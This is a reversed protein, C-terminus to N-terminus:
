FDVVFSKLNEFEFNGEVKQNCEAKNKAKLEMQDEKCQVILFNLFKNLVNMKDIEGYNQYKMM